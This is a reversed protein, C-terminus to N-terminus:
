GTVFQVDSVEAGNLEVIAGLLRGVNYESGPNVCVTRGIRTTGRSEHIHGSLALLPQFEEIIRRVATSGVPVMNPHGARIVMTLDDRLEPAQDLGTDYPPVHANLIVRSPDGAQSLVRRLDGEIEEESKERPTDWPTRNSWGYGVMKYDAFDAVREDHNCVLQAADIAEGVFEEDDNGPMVYCSIGSGDLREDALKMWESLQTRMASGFADDVVERDSRMSSAEAEECRYPYFGNFRILRELEELEAGAVQHDRGMFRVRYRGDPMRVVPVLAKGTVDGGLVLADVKYFRGANIFKRFCVDSGHIDAATFLKTRSRGTAPTGRAWLIRM